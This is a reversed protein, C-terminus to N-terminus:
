FFGQVGGLLVTGVHSLASFLPGTLLGLPIDRMQDKDVFRPGFGIHRSSLAPSRFALTQDSRNRMSM